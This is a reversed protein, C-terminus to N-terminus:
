HLTTNWSLWAESSGLVIEPGEKECSHVTLATTRIHGKVTLLAKLELKM